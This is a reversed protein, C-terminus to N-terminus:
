NDCTPMMSDNFTGWGWQGAFEDLTPAMNQKAKCAPSKDGDMAWLLSVVFKILHIFSTGCVM